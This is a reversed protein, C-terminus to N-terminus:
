NPEQLVEAAPVAVAARELWRELRKPDKQALIQERAAKPVRLGRARLVILVVRAAEKARGQKRGEERGEKLGEERGEARAKERTNHMTAM